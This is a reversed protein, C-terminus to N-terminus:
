RKDYNCIMYVFDLATIRTEPEEVQQIIGL